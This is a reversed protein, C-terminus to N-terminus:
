HNKIKGLVFEKIRKASEFADKADKWGFEPYDAPYRTPVYFTTLFIADDKIEDFRKEIKMCLETLKLLSHIKPYERKEQVLFAKLYKEAIQQSLFCVTNPAGGEEKLIVNASLEDETARKLWEEVILDQKQLKDSM